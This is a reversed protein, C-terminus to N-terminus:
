VATKTTWLRFFTTLIHASIPQFSFSSDCFITAHRTSGRAAFSKFFVQLPNSRPKKNRLSFPRKLKRKNSKTPKTELRNKERRHRFTKKSVFNAKKPIDKKEAAAAAFSIINTGEVRIRM